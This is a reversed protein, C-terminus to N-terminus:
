PTECDSDHGGEHVAAVHPSTQVSKVMHEAMRQVVNSMQLIEYHPAPYKKRLEPADVKTAKIGISPV